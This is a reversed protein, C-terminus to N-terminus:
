GHVKFSRSSFNCDWRAVCTYCQYFIQLQKENQIDSPFHDMFEAKDPLCFKQCKREMRNVHPSRGGGARRSPQETNEEDDTDDFNLTAALYTADLPCKKLGRVGLRQGRNPQCNYTPDKMIEWASIDPICVDQWTNLQCKAIGTAMFHQPCQFEGTCRTAFGAFDNECTPSEENSLPLDTKRCREEMEENTFKKYTVSIGGRKRFMSGSGRFVIRVRGTNSEFHIVEESVSEYTQEEYEVNSSKDMVELQNEKKRYIFSQREETNIVDTTYDTIAVTEEDALESLNLEVLIKEKGYVDGLIVFSKKSTYWRPTKFTGAEKDHREKKKADAEHVNSLAAIMLLILKLAKKCDM